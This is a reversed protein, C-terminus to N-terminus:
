IELKNKRNSLNVSSNNINNITALLKELNLPKLIYDCAGSNLAKEKDVARALGSMIIIPISSYIKPLLKIKECTAFGDLIPMKADILIINPLANYFSLKALFEIADKGNSCSSVKFKKNEFFHKLILKNSSDDDVIMVHINKPSLNYNKLTRQNRSIRGDNKFKDSSMPQLSDKIKYKGFLKNKPLNKSLIENDIDEFDHDSPSKELKPEEFSTIDSPFSIIFTSGKNISSNVDIVGNHLDTIKKVLSLGLGTGDNSTINQKAQQYPNFIVKLDSKRIGIGNDTIEFNINKQTEDSYVRVKIFGDERTFKIANSLLNLILQKILDEDFIAEYIKSSITQRIKINKNKALPAIMRTIKNVFELVNVSKKNLNMEGSQIKYFNLMNNVLNLIHQSNQHIINLSDIQKNNLQGFTKDSLLKEMDLIANLPTRLEHSFNSVMEEKSSNQSELKKIQSNLEVMLDTTKEKEKILTDSIHSTKKKDFSIGMIGIFKNHDDKIPKLISIYSETKSHNILKQIVEGNKCKIYDSKSLLFPFKNKPLNNISKNIISENYIKNYKFNKNSIHKLILNNNTTWFLAPVNNSYLNFQNKIYSLKKEYDLIRNNFLETTSKLRLNEKHYFIYSKFVIYFALLFISIMLFIRAFDLLSITNDYRENINSKISRIIKNYNNIKFILNNIFNKDVTAEYSYININEDLAQNLADSNAISNNLNGNQAAILNDSNDVFEELKINQLQNNEIFYNSYASHLKEIELFSNLIQYLFENNYSNLKASNDNNFNISLSNNKNYDLVNRYLNPNDTKVFDIVETHIKQASKFNTVINKLQELNNNKVSQIYDPVTKYSLSQLLNLKLIYKNKTYNYHKFYKSIFFYVVLLVVLSISINTFIFKAKKINTLM